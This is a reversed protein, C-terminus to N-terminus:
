LFLKSLVFLVAVATVVVSVTKLWYGWIELVEEKDKPNKVNQKMYEHIHRHCNPCLDVTEGKKGFESKPLIHHEDIYFHTGCKKCKGKRQEKM